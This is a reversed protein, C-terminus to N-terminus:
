TKAKGLRVEMSKIASAVLLGTRVPLSDLFDKREAPTREMNNAAMKTMFMARKDYIM